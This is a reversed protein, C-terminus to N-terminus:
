ESMYFERKQRQVLTQKFRLRHDVLNLIGEGDSPLASRRVPHDNSCIANTGPGNRHLTDDKKM